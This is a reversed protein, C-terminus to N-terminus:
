PLRRLESRIVGRAVNQRVYLVLRTGSPLSPEQAAMWEFPGALELRLSYRARDCDLSLSVSDRADWARLDRWLDFGTGAPAVAARSPASASGSASLRCDFHWLQGITHPAAVGTADPRPTIAVEDVLGQEGLALTRVVSVQPNYHPQAVAVRTTVADFSLLAGPAAEAQGQDDALPVNHAVAQSFYTKHLLSGYSTTGVDRSILADGEFVELNLAERQAHRPSAQGWHLFVQWPGQRLVAARSADWVASRVPPAMALGDTPRWAADLLRPWALPDTDPVDPTAAPAAPSDLPTLVVVRSAARTAELVATRVDGLSDGPNPLRGDPFRLALPALALRRAAVFLAAHAPARGERALAELLPTVARVVYAGYALSGEFWLGDPQLGQALVSGLGDRGKMARTLLAEDNLHLALVGVASLQWVTINGVGRASGLLMEAQPRFLKQAWFASREPSVSPALLRAAEVLDLVMVADDLSQAMLRSRGQRTQIPWQDLHTAYFDLVGAAADRLDIAGTLRHLRAAELANRGQRIRLGYVWAAHVAREASTSGEPPRASLSWAMARGDPGVLDHAWGAIWAPRDQTRAFWDRTQRQRDTSWRRWAADVTVAQRAAEWDDIPVRAVVPTLEPGASQAIAGGPVWALMLVLGAAVAARCCESIGPIRM